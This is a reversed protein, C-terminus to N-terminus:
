VKLYTAGELQYYEMPYEWADNAEAFDLRACAAFFGELEQGNGRFGGYLGINNVASPVVFNMPNYVLNKEVVCYVFDQLTYGQDLLAIVAPHALVGLKYVAAQFDYRYQWFDYKFGKITKGTTKFDVPTITKKTHNIVVRDLEGKIARGNHLFQIIFRDWFEVNNKDFKKDVYPRTFADAKLAMVCSVANAYETETVLIKNIGKRLINFYATGQEIVKNVRTDEKWNPQYNQYQCHSLILNPYESFDKIEGIDKVGEFVGLVIVKIADSCKVDDPIRSFKTDFEAKTSLLMMDVMSGFVFHEESSEDSSEQREKAKLYDKPHDLIKKLISQNTGPLSKYDM